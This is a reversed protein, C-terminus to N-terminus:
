ECEPSVPKGNLPIRYAPNINGNLCFEFNQRVPKGTEPIRYATKTRTSEAEFEAQRKDTDPLGSAVTVAVTFYKGFNVIQGWFKIFSYYSGFTIFTQM